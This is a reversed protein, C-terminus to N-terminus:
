SEEVAPCPTHHHTATIALSGCRDTRLVRARPYLELASSAPHGYGNDHGVPVLLVAPDLLEALAASQRASGHHAMVVAHAPVRVGASRLQRAFRDQAETELDGLALVSVHPTALWVVVSADNAGTGPAVDDPWLVRWTVEGARGAMGTRAAHVPTGHRALRDLAASAQADPERVPSVLATGVDRGALVGPLGEVHDAHFHSLVLLEVRSIGLRDLCEGAAGGDPGVDVVVASAEGSRVVLSTGQGVDCLMLQWGPPPWGDPWLALGARRGPPTLALARCVVLVGAALWMGRPVAGRGVVLVGGALLVVALAVAGGPGGPWPLLAGPLAAGTRAVVALWSCAWGAAVALHTALWPWWPAVLTALVGLVTGPVLAPAALLNAPVAYTSISPALLVLVPSCALQAAFPVAIAHALWAPLWRELRLAVPRAVLVLGATALVSLVFGYSRALWPDVVLLVLVAMALAPMARSPRGLLLALVGISGMVAARLVSPEPHVLLVFGVTTVLVAGARGPRPVGLLTVLGLVTAGIIAFHAGSVATVHTLSVDRMAQGLEPDIRSTDGLALGPVLGRVDPGLSATVALLGARLEAVVRDVAGAAAVTVPPDFARVLAVVDRGADAPGLRGTLRVREGYRVGAWEDGGLVLVRAAAGGTEGRGSVARAAVQVRYGGSAVPAPESRVQGELDVVAREVVLRELPGESRLALQGALSGAVASVAAAVLVVHGAARQPSASRDTSTLRVGSRARPSSGALRHGAMALVLGSAVAVLAAVTANQTVLLAAALWTATAAPVLRLDTVTTM